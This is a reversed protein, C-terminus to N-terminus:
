IGNGSLVQPIPQAGESNGGAPDRGPRFGGKKGRTEEALMGGGRISFVCFRLVSVIQVVPSNKLGVERM